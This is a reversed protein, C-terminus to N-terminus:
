KKTNNLSNSFGSVAGIYCIGALLIAIINLITFIEETTYKVQNVAGILGLLWGTAAFLWLNPKNM